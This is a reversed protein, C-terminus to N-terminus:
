VRLDIEAGFVFFVEDDNFFLSMHHAIIISNKITDYEKQRNHDRV